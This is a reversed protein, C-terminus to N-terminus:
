NSPRWPLTEALAARLASDIAPGIPGSAPIRLARPATGFLV